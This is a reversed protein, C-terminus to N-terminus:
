PACDVPCRRQRQNGQFQSRYSIIGIGDIFVNNFFWGSRQFITGREGDILYLALAYRYMKKRKYNTKARRDFFRVVSLIGRVESGVRRLRDFPLSFPM